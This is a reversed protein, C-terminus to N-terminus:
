PAGLSTFASGNWYWLNGDAATMYAWPYPSALLVGVPIDFAYGTPTLGHDALGSWEGNDEDSFFHGNSAITYLYIPFVGEDDIAGVAKTLTVGGSPSGLNTWDDEGAIAAILWLNGASGLVSAYQHESDSTPGAVFAGLSSGIGGSSPPGEKLWTWSSGNWLASWVNGASDVVWVDPETGVWEVVGLGKAVGAGSTPHGVEGWVWSSGNYYKAWVNGDSGVIAAWPNGSSTVAGVAGDIRVGSPTGMNTWPWGSGNWNNLWLNGDSGVVFEYPNGGANIVGVSYSISATSPKSLNVWRFGGDNTNLWLNGDSGVVFAYAYDSGNLVAGVGATISVASAVTARSAILIAALAVMCRGLVKYWTSM